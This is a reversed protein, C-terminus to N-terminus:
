SPKLSDFVLGSFLQSYLCTSKPPRKELNGAIWEVHRM